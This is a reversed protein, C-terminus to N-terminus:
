LVVGRVELGPVHGTADEFLADAVVEWRVVELRDVHERALAERALRSQVVQRPVDCGLLRLVGHLVARQGVLLQEGAGCGRRLGRASVHLLLGTFGPGSHLERTGLGPLM